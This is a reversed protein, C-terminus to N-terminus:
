HTKIRTAKTQDQSNLQNTQLAKNEKILSHEFFKCNGQRIQTHTHKATLILSVM